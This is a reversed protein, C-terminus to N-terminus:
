TTAEDWLRNESGGGQRGGSGVSRLLGFMLISLMDIFEYWTGFENFIRAPINRVKPATHPRITRPSMMHRRPHLDIIHIIHTSEDADFM